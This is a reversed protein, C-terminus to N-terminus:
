WIRSNHNTRKSFGANSIWKSSKIPTNQGSMSIRKEQMEMLTSYYSSAYLVVSVIMVAFIALLIVKKNM